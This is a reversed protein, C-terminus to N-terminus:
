FRNLLKAPWRIQCLQGPRARRHDAGPVERLLDVIQRQKPRKDANAAVQNFAREVRTLVNGGKSLDLAGLRFEVLDRFLPSSLALGFGEGVGGFLREGNGLAGEVATAM